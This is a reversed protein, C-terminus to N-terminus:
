RMKLFIMYTNPVEWIYVQKKIKFNKLSKQIIYEALQEQKSM